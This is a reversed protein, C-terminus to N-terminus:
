GRPAQARSARHRMRRDTDAVNTARCAFRYTAHLLEVKFSSASPGAARDPSFTSRSRSWSAMSSFRSRIGHDRNFTSPFVGARVSGRRARHRHSPRRVCPAFGNSLGAGSGRSARPLPQQPRFRPKRRSALLAARRRGRPGRAISRVRPFLEADSHSRDPKGGVDLGDGFLLADHLVRGALRRPISKSCSRKVRRIM